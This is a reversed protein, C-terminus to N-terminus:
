EGFNLYSRFQKKRVYGLARQSHIHASHACITSYRARRRSYQSRESYIRLCVMSSNRAKLVDACSLLAFTVLVFHSFYWAGAYQLM